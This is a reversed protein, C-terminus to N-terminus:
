LGVTKHEYCTEVGYDAVIHCRFYGLVGVFLTQRQLLARHLQLRQTFLIEIAM